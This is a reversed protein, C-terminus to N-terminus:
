PLYCSDVTCKGHLEFSNEKQISSFHLWCKRGSHDTKYFTYSVEAKYCISKSSNDLCTGGLKGPRPLHGCSKQTYAHADPHHLVKMLSYLDELPVPGSM